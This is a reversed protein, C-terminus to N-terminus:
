RPPPYYESLMADTTADGNTDRRTYRVHYPGRWSQCQERYLTLETRNPLAISDVTEFFPIGGGGWNKTSPAVPRDGPTEPANETRALLWPPVIIM